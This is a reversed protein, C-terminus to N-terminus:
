VEQSLIPSRLSNKWIDNTNYTHQHCWATHIEKAGVFEARYRDRSDRVAVKVSM